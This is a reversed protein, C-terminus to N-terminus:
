GERGAAPQWQRYALFLFMAGVALRLVGGLVSEKGNSSFADSSAFVLVIVSLIALGAVWGVLFALSNSTAHRSFLLLIVAIIPIPGLAVGVAFPMLDGIATGM